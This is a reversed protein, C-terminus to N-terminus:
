WDSRINMIMNMNMVMNGYGNGYEKGIELKHIQGNDNRESLKRM